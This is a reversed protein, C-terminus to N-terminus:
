RDCDQLKWALYLNLDSQIHGLTAAQSAISVSRMGERGVCFRKKGGEVEKGM